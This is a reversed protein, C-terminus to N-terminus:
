FGIIENIVFLIPIIELACLYLLFYFISFGKNLFVKLSRFFRLFVMIIFSMAFFYLSIEQSIGKSYAQIILLPIAIIGFVRPFIIQHFYFENFFTSNDSFFGVLKNSVYQFLRFLVMGSFIFLGLMLSPFHTTSLGFLQDYSLVVYISIIVFYTIDLVLSIRRSFLSGERNQKSAIFFYFLGQFYNALQKNFFYKVTGVILVLLFIPLIIWELENIANSRPIPLIENRSKTSGANLSEIFVPGPSGVEEIFYQKDYLNTEFFSLSKGQSSEILNIYYKGEKALCWHCTTDVQRVSQRITKRESTRSIKEKYADVEKRKQEIKLFIPNIGQLSADITDIEPVKPITDQQSAKTLHFSFYNGM